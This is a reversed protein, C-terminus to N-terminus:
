TRIGRVPAGVEIVGPRTLIANVGFVSDHDLALTRLPEKPHREGTQQDTTVMVCRVCPKVARMGADGLSLAGWTREEWPESGSIVVNPRFRDMSVPDSLKANLADLSATSTILYPFGDAFGVEGVPFRDDTPRRTTEPMWVLRAPTHLLDSLWRSVEEGCDVAAVEDGWVVVGRGEGLPRRDVECTSGPIALSLHGEDLRTTITALIPHRRQTVFRGAEDVIMFRRDDRPGRPTAEVRDVRYGRCSKVPYVWLAEVRM